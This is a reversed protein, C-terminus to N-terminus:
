HHSFVRILIGGVAGYVLLAVLSAPEFSHAVAGAVDTTQGIVGAFPTVLPSSVDYIWSVFPATANAGILLFVFRLGVVLNILGFVVSVIPAMFEGQM